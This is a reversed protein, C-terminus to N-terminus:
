TGVKKTRAVRKKIADVSLTPDSERALRRYADMSKMGGAVLEAHRRALAANFGDDAVAGGLSGDASEVGYAKVLAALQGLEFTKQDRFEGPEARHWWDHVVVIRAAFDEVSDRKFGRAEIHRDLQRITRLLSWRPWGPDPRGYHREVITASSPLGRAELVARANTAFRDMREALGLIPRSKLLEFLEAPGEITIQEHLSFRRGDIKRDMM